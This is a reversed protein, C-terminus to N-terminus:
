GHEVPTLTLGEKNGLAALPTKEEGRASGECRPTLGWHEAVCPQICRCNM